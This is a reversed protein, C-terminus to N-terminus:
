VRWPPLGHRSGLSDFGFRLLGPGLGTGGLEVTEESCKPQLTEVGERRYQHRRKRRSFRKEEDARM